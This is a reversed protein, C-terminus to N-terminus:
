GRHHHIAPGIHVHWLVGAAVLQDSVAEALWDWAVRRPPGVEDRLAKTLTVCGLSSGGVYEPIASWDRYGIRDADPLQDWVSPEGHRLPYPTTCAPAACDCMAALQEVTPVVDHEVIVLPDATDWGWLDRLLEWYAWPGELRWPLVDWGGVALLRRLTDTDARDAAPRRESWPFLVLPAM